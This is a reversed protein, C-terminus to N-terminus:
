AGREPAFDDLSLGLSVLFGVFDEAPFVKVTGTIVCHDKIMVTGVYMQGDKTFLGVALTDVDFASQGVKVRAENVKGVFTDRAKDSAVLIRAKISRASDYFKTDTVACSASQANASTVPGAFLLATALLLAKLTNKM